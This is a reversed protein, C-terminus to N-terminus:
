CIILQKREMNDSENGCKYFVPVPKYSYEHLLDQVSSKRNEYCDYCLYEETRDLYYADDRRITTHCCECVEYHESCNDCIPEGDYFGWRHSIPYHEECHYCYFFRDEDEICEECVYGQSGDPLNSWTMSENLHPTDCYACISMCDSCYFKGDGEYYSEETIVSSCCACKREKSM